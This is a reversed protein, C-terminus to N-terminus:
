FYARFLAAITTAASHRRKMEEDKRKKGISNQDDNDAARNQSSNELDDETKRPRVRRPSAEESKSPSPRKKKNDSNVYMTAPLVVRCFERDIQDFHFEDLLMKQAIEALLRTNANKPKLADTSQAVRDLIEFVVSCTSRNRIKLLPTLAARLFKAISSKEAKFDESMYFDSMPRDSFTPIHAVLHLAYPLMYEAMTLSMARTTVDESEENAQRSALWAKSERHRTRVFYLLKSTSKQRISPLPDNASVIMMAMYMLPSVENRNIRKIVADLVSMRAEDSSDLLVWALRHYMDISLARTKAIRLVSKAATVRLAARLYSDEDNSLDQLGTLDINDSSSSSTTFVSSSTSESDLGELITGLIKLTKESYAESLMGVRTLTKLALVRNDSTIADEFSEWEVSDKNEESLLGLSGVVLNWVREIATKELREADHTVFEGFIRLACSLREDDIDLNLVTQDLLETLDEEDSEDLLLARSAFKCHVSTFQQVRKQRGSFDKTSGTCISMLHRRMKRLSAQSAKYIQRKSTAIHKLDLRCILKLTETLSQSLFSSSGKVFTEIKNCLHTELSSIAVDFMGPVYVSIMHLLSTAAKNERSSAQVLFPVSDANLTLMSIKRLLFRLFNALESKSGVASLLSTRSKRLTQISSSPNAFVDLLKFVRKNKQTHLQKAIKHQLKRNMQEAAISAVSQLISLAKVDGDGSTAEKHNRTELYDRLRKQLHARKKFMMEFGRSESEDLSEYVQIM